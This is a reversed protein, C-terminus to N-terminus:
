VEAPNANKINNWGVFILIFAILGVIGGIVGGILPIWGLVTAVVNLIMAMFLNSAGSRAKVPFTASGKLASFGMIMVIFAIINLIGGIIWGAVPIIGVVVAVIGLIVGLRIKGVAAADAEGLINGFDGLGKLYLVYGGILGVFCIWKLVSLFGGSGFLGAASALSGFLSYLFGAIV